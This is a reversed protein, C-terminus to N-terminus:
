RAEFACFEGAIMACGADWQVLCCFQDFACVEASCWEVGCGVGFHSDFCPSDVSAVPPCPMPWPLPKPKPKTGTFQVDGGFGSGVLAVCGDAIESEIIISAEAFRQDGTELDTGVLIVPQVAPGDHDFVGAVRLWVSASGNGELTLLSGELFEVPWGGETFAELEFIRDFEAGNAVSFHVLAEQFLPRAVTRTTDGHMIFYMEDDDDKPICKFTKQLQRRLSVITWEHAVQKHAEVDVVYLRHISSECPVILNAGGPSGEMTGLHWDEEDDVDWAPTNDRDVRIGNQDYVTYKVSALYDGQDTTATFTVKADNADWVCPGTGGPCFKILTTTDPTAPGGGLQEPVCSSWNITVGRGLADSSTLPLLLSTALLLTSPALALNPLRM